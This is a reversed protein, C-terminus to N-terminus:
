EKFIWVTSHGKGEGRCPPFRRGVKMTVTRNNHDQCVYVGAKECVAGTKTSLESDNNPKSSLLQNHAQTVEQFYRIWVLVLLALVIVVTFINLTIRSGVIFFTIVLVLVLVLSIGLSKKLEKSM